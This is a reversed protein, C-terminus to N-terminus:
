GHRSIHSVLAILIEFTPTRLESFKSGHLEFAGGNRWELEDRDASWCSHERATPGRRVM